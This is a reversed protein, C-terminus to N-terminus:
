LQRRDLAEALRTAASALQAQPDPPAVAEDRRRLAEISRVIM